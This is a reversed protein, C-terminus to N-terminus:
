SCSLLSWNMHLLLTSRLRPSRLHSVVTGASGIPRSGYLSIGDDGCIISYSEGYQQSGFVFSQQSCEPGAQRHIPPLASRVTVTYLCSFYKSYRLPHNVFIQCRYASHMVQRWAARQLEIANRFLRIQAEEDRTLPTM